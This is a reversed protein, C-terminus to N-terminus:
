KTQNKVFTEIDSFSPLSEYINEITKEVEIRRKLNTNECKLTNNENNLVRIESELLEIKQKLSLIESDEDVEIHEAYVVETPTSSTTSGRQTNQVVESVNSVTEFINFLGQGPFYTSTNM